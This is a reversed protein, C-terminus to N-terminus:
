SKGGLDDKFAVVWLLVLAFLPFVAALAVWNPIGHRPLIRWFPVVLLLAGILWWLFMGGGYGYYMM